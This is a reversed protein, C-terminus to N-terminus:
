KTEDKSDSVKKEPDTSKKEGEPTVDIATSDRMAKKFNAIAGGLGSGLEPLRKTGFLLVVVTGIIFLELPSGLAMFFQNHLEM